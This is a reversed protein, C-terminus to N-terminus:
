ESQSKGKKLDSEDITIGRDGQVYDEVTGTEDMERQKSFAESGTKERELAIMIDDMTILDKSAFVARRAANLVINKIQGGSIRYRCLHDFDVCASVIEPKPFMRKWILKRDEKSPQPFELKLALRREFAKDLVPTNNTTFVCVGDFREIESLVCNVQAGLIMGIRKRDYILSDCEDFLLVSNTKKAQAFFAKIAREAGGPESSEVEASGVVILKRKLHQALAEATLTKGTGPPGYFLMTLGKGKELLDGFGWDNFLKDNLEARTQGITELIAEKIGAPFVITEFLNIKKKNIPDLKPHKFFKVPLTHETAKNDKDFMQAHILMESKDPANWWGQLENVILKTGTDLPPKCDKTGKGIVVEEGYCLHETRRGLAYIPVIMHRNPQKGNVAKCEMSWIFPNDAQGNNITFSTLEIEQGVSLNHTDDQQIIVFKKFNNNEILDRIKKSHEILEEKMPDDSRDAQNQLPGNLEELFKKRGKKNELLKKSNEKEAPEKKPEKGKQQIFQTPDASSNMLRLLENMAKNAADQPGPGQMASM